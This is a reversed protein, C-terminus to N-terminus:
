ISCVSCQSYGTVQFVPALDFGDRLANYIGFSQGSLLLETSGATDGM